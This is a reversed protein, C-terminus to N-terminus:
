APPDDAADAREPGGQSPPRWAYDAYRLQRQGLEDIRAGEERLLDLEYARDSAEPDDVPEATAEPGGGSPDSPGGPHSTLRATLRRLFGM